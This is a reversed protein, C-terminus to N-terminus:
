CRNSCVTFCHQEATTDGEFIVPRACFPQVTDCSSGCDCRCEDAGCQSSAVCTPGEDLEQATTREGTLDAPAAACALLSVGVILTSVLRLM